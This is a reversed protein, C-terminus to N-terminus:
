RCAGRHSTLTSAATADPAPQEDLENCIRSLQSKDIGTLGRARVLDDVKRTHVGKVPSNPASYQPSGPLHALV